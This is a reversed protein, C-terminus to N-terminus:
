RERAPEPVPRAVPMRAIVGLLVLGGVAMGIQVPLLPAFIVSPTFVLIVLTWAATRAKPSVTRTERWQQIAPGFHPLNLVWAYLRPNSRAFCAAALLLFPTTPVLPLLLGVAGALVALLGIGQLLTRLLANKM